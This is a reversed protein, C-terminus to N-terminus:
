QVIDFREKRFIRYLKWIASFGDLSMGRKMKVPIYHIQDGTYQLMSEDDSCIFTVDYGEESVLHRALDLLFSKITGSLTTVFCIRKM